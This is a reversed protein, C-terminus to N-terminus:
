RKGENELYDVWQKVLPIQPGKARTYADAYERALKLDEARGHVLAGSSHLTYIWQVGLSLADRDDRRNALYRELTRVAERGRGFTGYLLALPKTFRADSPWKSVAEELITRAQGLDRGRMLADGLWQYIQPFEAGDILATQWASAAETDHGSAAFAAALYVLPATSDTDPDIAKKFSAEAKGFDGGALLAVGQDFSAKATAPVRERFPAVVDRSVVADRQFAPALAAEDVPLFLEADMSANGIAGLGDASTMLVKPAAVEFGRSLTKISRGDESLIARLVYKGPPLQRVPIAKTFIVRTDGAPHPAVDANLLAPADPDTAIEYEMTVSDAKSGYAEVYGHVLGFTVEYGITPQLLEGGDLPGGVMLESLTVGPADPLAAHLPHEITGVRDGEAIALKMTYDGPALSAGATFQLPSPVGTMTPFLRADTSKSDVLRGNRDTIVYGISVVKSNAYDSGVDAHILVQVKDREPGQLGYSAVRLPLASSLLPSALASAMARRPSRAPGGARLEAPENLMQRRSRVLAGRRPVDVRIPHGKGDRDRPDSEVALLYYGSLESEIREFLNAGTGTVTFMTGRAAGALMELGESQAMRDGIPNLPARTNTIDFMGNDLKLVYVSTRAAAALNGLESVLGPDNLVFGESILVLTKPADIGRLGTLLARLADLTEAAERLASQARDRAEVQVQTICVDLAAPGPPLNQCERTVVDGTTMRDGRDIAVAETFSINHEVFMQAQKLGTMRTIAQKVRARDATFATAPAGVGIGAVAVRDAPSLRDIFAGAAKSIALAGGFRINPQDIALVILRGGTSSANSSFGDPPPTAPSASEPTVLSIWEASVVKRPNGDIRVNFDAPKLDAVPKGRDDVVAVDLSTVEVSSTFRPPQQPAQALVSSASPYGRLVGLGCLLLLVM